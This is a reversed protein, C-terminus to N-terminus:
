IGKRTVFSYPPRVYSVMNAGRSIFLLSCFDIFSQSSNGTDVLYIDHNEVQWNYRAPSTKHPLCFTNSYYDKLSYACEYGKAGMFIITIDYNM